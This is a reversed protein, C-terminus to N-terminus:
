WKGSRLLGGSRGTCVLAIRRRYPEVPDGGGLLPVAAAPQLRLLDAAASDRRDLPPHQDGPADIDGAALWSGDLEGSDLETRRTQCGRRGAPRRRRCGLLATASELTSQGDLGVNGIQTFAIHSSLLFSMTPHLTHNQDCGLRFATTVNRGWTVEPNVISGPAVPRPPASM